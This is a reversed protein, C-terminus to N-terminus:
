CLLLLNRKKLLLRIEVDCDTLTEGIKKQQSIEPIRVELNFFDMVSINLLGHARAGEQAVSRLDKNLLGADFYHTMFSALVESSDRISFCIYLTSLVGINYKTLQKISGFPAGNASSRNYAFEGKKISYYNKLNAGSVSRNFYERQSVLGRKASITLVNTSGHTNKRTVRRAIEKLKVTKFKTSDNRLLQQMLAEKCQEKAQILRDLTEIAADWTNLIEAIRKQEEIPPLPIPISQYSKSSVNMMGTGGSSRALVRRRFVDSRLIQFIFLPNTRGLKPQIQWLKDPLYLNPETQHTYVATGVLNASGNARNVLITNSRVQTKLRNAEAISVAKYQEPLYKGSTVASVKLLKRESPAARREEGSISTGSEIKEIVEGLRVCGWDM